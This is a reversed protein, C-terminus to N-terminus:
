STEVLYAQYEVCCISPTKEGILNIPPRLGRIADCRMADILDSLSADIWKGETRWGQDVACHM